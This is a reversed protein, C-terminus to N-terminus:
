RCSLPELQDVFVAVVVPVVAVMAVAVDPSRGTVTRWRQGRRCTRAAPGGCPADRDGDTGHRGRGCALGRFAGQGRCRGRGHGLGASGGGAAPVM